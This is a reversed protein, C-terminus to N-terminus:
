TGRAAARAPTASGAAAASAGGRPAVEGALVRLLTSKGAGNPGTILLREGATVALSTRDLRDTVAIDAADLVVGELRRARLVPAFRLPEPPPPVPNALLRRLREEANRVRSALSQQVRSGARDYARQFAENM